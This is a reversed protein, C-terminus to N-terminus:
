RRTTTAKPAPASSTPRPAPRATAPKATAPKTPKPAPKATVKVVPPRVLRVTASAFVRRVVVKGLVKSADVMYGHGLYIGLHEAPAGYVVLDGVRADSLPVRASRAVLAVRDDPLAGGGAHRWAVRVLELDTWARSGAVSRANAAAKLMVPSSPVRQVGPLGKLPVVPAASPKAPAAAPAASPKAATAPRTPAAAPRSPTASPAASPTPPVWPKVKPMGPRPVRGYRVVGSTWLPREVVGKRSSSADIMRGNGIALGVHSVPSGFFVLDGPLLQEVPIPVAWRQQDRSVRPIDDVKGVHRWLFSTFGSCDWADPGAAGWQYTDGIQQKAVQVVAPVRDVPTAGGSAAVTGAALGVCVTLAGLARARARWASPLSLSV